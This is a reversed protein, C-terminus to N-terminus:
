KYAEMFAGHLDDPVIEKEIDIQRGEQSSKMAGIGTMEAAFADEVTTFPEAKGQMLNYFHRGTYPGGKYHIKGGYGFKYEESSGLLPNNRALTIKGDCHSIADHMSLELYLMGETGIIEYRRSFHNRVFFCQSYIGFVNNSCELLCMENDYVDVAKSYACLDHSMSVDKIGAGSDAGKTVRSPCNFDACKSCTLDEPKDGGYKQQRCIGTVKRPAAGCLYFAVDLDHTAKEILQGGGQELTRRYTSFLAGGGHYQVFNFSCVKGIEGSEIIKKAKQIIPAYRMVHDVMIPAKYKSSLRVIDCIKEFSSELPKELMMPLGAELCEELNERHFCNPSSIILGDLKENSLMEKVNKYRKPEKGFWECGEKYRPDEPEVVAPFKMKGHTAEYYELAHRKGMEGFGIIGVNLEPNESM